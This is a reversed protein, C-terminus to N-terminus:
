EQKKKIERLCQKCTVDKISLGASSEVFWMENLRKGCFTSNINSAHLTEHRESDYKNKCRRVYIIDDFMLVIRGDDKMTSIPKWDM